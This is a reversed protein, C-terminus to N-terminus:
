KGKRNPKLLEKERLITKMQALDQRKQSVVRRTKIKGSEFEVRAKVLEVQTKRILENLEKVLKARTEKLDKKKM